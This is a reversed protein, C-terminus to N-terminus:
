EAATLVQTLSLADTGMDEYTFQPDYKRQWNDEHCCGQGMTNHHKTSVCSNGPWPVLQTWFPGPLPFSEWDPM